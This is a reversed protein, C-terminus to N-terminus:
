PTIAERLARADCSGRHDWFRGQLAAAGAAAAAAVILPPGSGRLHDLQDVEVM